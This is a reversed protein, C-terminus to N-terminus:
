VGLATKAMSLQNNTQRYIEVESLKEPSTNYQNFELKQVAEPAAQAAPAAQSANVEQSTASAQGFSAAATIPTVNTLDGLQRAGRQVQSLDIVPTIVPETDMMGDLIDPVAKLKSGMAGVLDDATRHVARVATDGGNQLGNALGQMTNRGIEHFVSSPSSIGLIKKAFHPLIDIVKMLAGRVLHGVKGLGDVLGEVIAKAIDVGAAILDGENNRIANAIGHLFKIVAKFGADALKGSQDAIANIFKIILRTGAAVIRPLANGIGDLFKVIVRTGAAIVKPLNAAIANLWGVIMRTAAGAMKPIQTTVGALFQIVVNAAQALVRPMNNAVGRLFSALVSVGSAIIRPLSDALGTLFHTVINGALMTIQGINNAIGSLFSVLLTLGAAIIQPGRTVVIELIADILSGAAIALRPAASIITTLLSDIIVGLALAVKPAVKAVGEFVDVLGQIFNIVIKPLLAVFGTLATLLVAIGKQGGEAMLSVGKAFLYFAAAIVALGAGLAILAVGMVALAPAALAGVIAIVGLTAAMAVLGKIISGWSMNGLIALAPALIGIAVAAGLLAASGALTGTMAYLGISFIVLAAGIAGLGKVLTGVDMNGMLAVAAGIATLAVGLIVLGAAQLAITPPILSVALGIGALAAAMGGIGQILALLDMQGFAMVAGSMLDLAIAIGILAPAMILANAPFIRLADGIMAISGGIGLLGKAIDEWKMSGFVAVAGALLGIGIALPVLAPGIILVRPGILKVGAAVAVLSGAVGAMGKAIDEWSMKSFAFMAIALIDVAAAMAIMAGAMLAMQAAGGLGGGVSGLMKMAGVLEGLGIAIATMSSALRKPDIKSIVFVGAALVGLAIAIQLLTNAQVNQQMATLRGNVADLVGVVNHRIDDFFSVKVGGSLSKKLMVFIGALAGTQLGSMLDDFSLGSFLDTIKGVFDSVQSIAESLVPQFYGAAQSVIDSLKHFIGILGRLVGGLPGLASELAEVHTHLLTFGNVTKDGNGTFLDGLIDGFAQLIRMPAQLVGSLGAFMGNLAGGASVGKDLAVLFDGLSGTFNLIGGAGKGAFGLLDALVQGVNKVITWGIHLLAFLGAFTRRLNEAAEPGLELSDMFGKFSLSMNRLDIATKPPFIERFADHIPKLVALVDKFAQKISDILVTRGGMDHWAKLVKNRANSNTNIFGNITQSLDTFTKKSESFDGFINQFTQAWGSGITERAVDFVQPLTKVQTAANQATKAQAQIAKIQEATFGQAALQADTMDGTMQSLTNTLVDSTLWSEQGPKAMISNRFSEGNVTAKGTAKDIQVAGDKLAGMNEATRMLSKQFVAGGMGANVVSNWDQLGVKGAAIAQSLQYMATSAQGSNSGSLAALNAIGKIASTAPKLQVGAATFTGINRAMESFNYITKDSYTNLEGLAANVTKLNGGSDQTNALITQISGLNTGYEQFGQIAPGLAFSKAFSAGKMAANTAIGGLANAAINELFTFQGGISSIAASLGSMDTRDAAAEIDTFTTGAGLQNLHAQTKDIATNAGELTVKSSDREIDTFTSGSNFFGFKAKLKDLASMPAQLTVKNADAEVRSIGSVSGMNRIATDLKSLTAMTQAVGAEFKANEFAMSVVREDISPM